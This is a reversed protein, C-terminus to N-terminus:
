METIPKEVASGVGSSCREAYGANGNSKQKRPNFSGGHQKVHCEKCLARARYRQSEDPKVRAKFTRSRIPVSHHVQEVEKKKCEECIGGAREIAELRTALSRGSQWNTPALPRLDVEWDSQNSVMRIRGTKPPFIDLVVQRKGIQILFTMRNRGKRSVSRLRGAAKERKIMKALSTKQKRALYRAYHQWTQFALRSFIKQPSNAYRYYNCWGRFMAGVQTMADVEPIHYYGCVGGIAKKAAQQKKPPITLIAKIGVGKDRLKGGIDYGLFGVKHSWHTLKTKEESLRLGMASFKAKIKGKIAEAEQKNGAVMALFDDAYRTYKVKCPHRRDKVYVPMGRQQRELKIIEKIAQRREKTDLVPLRKRLRHIRGVLRRYEPNRRAYAEARTQTRNAALEKMMFLDLQHLFVNALLPGLINGQPVGSYTKHYRWDQLYGAKLFRWILQLVKEDSIRRRLQEILKGHPINDYCGEIDGEVIWTIVPYGRAVDRLATHTSRLQRFGHSCDLFDAEFIPELLMRLAQQIIRDEITSIGLPRTKGNAKPILVRRVPKPRYKGTRLREALKTIRYLDIDVATLNDIGATHSGKNRRIQEWAQALWHPSILNGWLHNFRKCPDRRALKHLHKMEEAVLIM